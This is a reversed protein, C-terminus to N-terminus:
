GFLKTGKLIHYHTLVTVILPDKMTNDELNYQCHIKAYLEAYEKLGLDKQTFVYAMAHVIEEADGKKPRKSITNIRM